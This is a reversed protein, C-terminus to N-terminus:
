NEKHTSEQKQVLNKKRTCTCGQYTILLFCASNARRQYREDGAQQNHGTSLWLLILLALLVLKGNFVGGEILERDLFVGVADMPIVFRNIFVKDHEALHFHFELM